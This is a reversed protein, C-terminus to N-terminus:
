KELVEWANQESEKPAPLFVNEFYTDFVIDRSALAADGGTAVKTKVCNVKM